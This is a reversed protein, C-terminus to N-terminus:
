WSVRGCLLPIIYELVWYSVYYCGGTCSDQATWPTQQQQSSASVTVSPTDGDCVLPRAEGCVVPETVDASQCRAPTSLQLAVLTFSHFCSFRLLPFACLRLCSNIWPLLGWPPELTHTRPPPIPPPTGLLRFMFLRKYLSIAFYKYSGSKYWTVSLVYM